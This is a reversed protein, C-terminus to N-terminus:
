NPFKLLASSFAENLDFSLTMLSVPFSLFLLTLNALFEDPFRVFM